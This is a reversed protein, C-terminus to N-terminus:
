QKMEKLLEVTKQLMISGASHSFLSNSAEYFGKEYAEETVIYGQLEGNAYAILSINKFKKKLELVYEVFIEGPWGIFAWEGVKIVQVEAPLSSDYADKLKNEQALRSLFLLEESGFWDVEATRIERASSESTKLNEYREKTKDRHIVADEVSSFTRKPLDTLKQGTHVTVNSSYILNDNVRSKISESVIKGIREAEEFTNSRTVHRPSQNGAAGTFYVVTCSEGLFDELGKRIYFPFDSSILTSDEHLITPHMSCVLMAAIYEKSKNRVMMVPVDMDKPGEPNHRNTGVGTADAVVFGIEAPEAKKYAQCASYITQEEVFKLYDQDVKPVIPDNPSIVLDVTVPASHTHTAAILINSEDIGTSEAISKRVRAVFDKNLYIIDNSILLVESDGDNLYLASSLLPDHVGTSMREVFPYGFLFHPKDPTINSISAGAKIKHTM